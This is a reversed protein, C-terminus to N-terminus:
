FLHRPFISKINFIVLLTRKLLLMQNKMFLYQMKSLVDSNDFEVYVDFDDIVGLNLYLVRGETKAAILRSLTIAFATVGMGGNKSFVGFVRSNNSNVFPIIGYSEFALNNIEDMIAKIRLTKSICVKEDM